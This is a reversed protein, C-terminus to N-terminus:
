AALRVSYTKEFAGEGVEASGIQRGRKWAKGAHACGGEQADVVLLGGAEARGSVTISLPVGATPGSGVEVSIAEPAEAAALSPLVAAIVLVVAALFLWRWLAVAGCLRRAVDAGARSTREASRWAARGGM